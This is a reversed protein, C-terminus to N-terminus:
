PTASRSPDGAHDRLRSRVFAGAIGVVGLLFVFGGVRLGPPRFDLQVRDGANATVRLQEATADLALGTGHDDVATWGARAAIPLVHAGGSRTTFAIHGPSWFLHDVRPSTQWPGPTLGPPPLHLLADSCDICAQNRGAAEFNTRWPDDTLEPVDLDLRAYADQTVQDITTRSMAQPLAWATHALVVAAVVGVLPWRWRRGRGAAGLAVPALACLLPVWVMAWREPNRFRDLPPIGHVWAFLNVPLNHGLSVLFAIVVVGMPEVHRRWLAIGGALGLVAFLPSFWGPLGEHLGPADGFPLVSSNLFVFGLADLLSFDGMALPAQPGRLRATGALGAAVTVWKPAALAGAVLGAGVLRLAASARAGRIMSFGTWLVCTAAAIWAPYHGGGHAATAIAAGAAVAALGDRKPGILGLLAVPIWAAQAMMVHGHAMRWVYVDTTALGCLAVPLAWLPAGWHRALGLVGAGLIALHAVYSVRIVAAPHWFVSLWSLPHFVPAEPNALLPVGGATWPNWGPVLGLRWSRASAELLTLQYDWDSGKGNSIPLDLQLWGTAWGLGLAFLVCM